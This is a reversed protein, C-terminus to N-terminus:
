KAAAKDEDTLFDFPQVAGRTLVSIRYAMKISPIKQLKRWREVEQRKRGLLQSFTANQRSLPPPYVLNLYENLTM